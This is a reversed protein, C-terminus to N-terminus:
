AETRGYSNSKRLHRGQVGCEEDWFQFPTDRNGEWVTRLAGITTRIVQETVALKGLQWGVLHCDKRADPIHRHM